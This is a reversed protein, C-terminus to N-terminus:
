KICEHFNTIKAYFNSLLKYNSKHLTV